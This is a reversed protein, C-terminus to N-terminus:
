GGRVAEPGTLAPVLTEAPAYLTSITVSWETGWAPSAFGIAGANADPELSDRLLTGVASPVTDGRRSLHLEPSVSVLPDLTDGIVDGVPARAAPPPSSLRGILARERDALAAARHPTWLMEFWWRGVADQRLVHDYFALQHSPREAGLWHGFYGFWGGGVIADQPDDTVPSADIIPPRDLVAFPDDGPGAIGIPQSGLIAGGGAWAGVLAFALWDDRLCRVADASEIRVDLEVRRAQGNM